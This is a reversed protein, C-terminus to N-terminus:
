VGCDEMIEKVYKWITLSPNEEYYEFNKYTIQKKGTDSDNNEMIHEARKIAMKVDHLTLKSLCRKFNAKEKYEDLSSFHEGFAKNIYSLYQSRHTLPGNCDVKHLAIWLEFTYNSYGLGYKIKKRLNNAIAIQDLVNTFKKKCDEENGEIDCIHVIRPTSFTTQSKVFKSPHQGVKAIISAKYIANECANIQEALWEFYWQETYGEVTFTYKRTEKLEAM